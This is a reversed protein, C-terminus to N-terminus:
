LAIPSTLTFTVPSGTMPAWYVPPDAGVIDATVGSVSATATGPFTVPVPVSCVNGNATTVTVSVIHSGDSSYNYTSKPACGDLKERNQFMIGIDDHKLTTFTWTTLRQMEQSITEVWIQILSLKGSVTGVTYTPMDANRLNAQHFMYPDHRLKLLNRATVEREYETLNTFDGWGGSTAIWEASTCAQTDCNYYIANSWRPIITLGDYGNAAVTSTLPWHENVTNLLVPRSNDGVVYKIGNQMWARIVDGNHLGTIAPPILGWSFKTASSIQTL